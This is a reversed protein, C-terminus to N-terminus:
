LILWHAPYKQIIQNVSVAEAQIFMRREHYTSKMLPLLVSDRPKPKKMEEGIAKKHQEVSLNDDPVAELIQAPYRWLLNDKAINDEQM